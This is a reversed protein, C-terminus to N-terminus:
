EGQASRGIRQVPTIVGCYIVKVHLDDGCRSFDLITQDSKRFSGADAKTRCIKGDVAAALPPEKLDILLALKEPQFLVTRLSRQQLFETSEKGRIFIGAFQQLVPM